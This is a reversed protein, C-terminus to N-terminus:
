GWSDLDLAQSGGQDLEKLVGKLQLWLFVATFLTLPIALGAAIMDPLGFVSMGSTLFLGIGCAIGVFPLKLNINNLSTLSLNARDISWAKVYRKLTADFAAGCSLGIFLGFFILFYPPDSPFYYLSFEKFHSITIASSTLYM